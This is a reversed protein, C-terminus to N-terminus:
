CCKSTRSKIKNPLHCQFIQMVYMYDYLILIKLLVHDKTIYFFLTSFFIQIQNMLFM